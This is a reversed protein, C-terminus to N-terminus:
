VGKTLLSTDRNKLVTYLNTMAIIRLLFYRKLKTAVTVMWM